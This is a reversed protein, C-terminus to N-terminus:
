TRLVKHDTQINQTTHVMRNIHNHGKITPRSFHQIKRSHPLHVSELKAQLSKEMNIRIANNSPLVSVHRKQNSLSSHYQRLPYSHSFRKRDSKLTGVMYNATRLHKHPLVHFPRVHRPLGNPKNQFWFRKSICRNPHNNIPNHRRINTTDGQRLVMQHYETEYGKHTRNSCRSTQEQFIQDTNKNQVNSPSHLPQIPRGLECARTIANDNEKHMKKISGIQM